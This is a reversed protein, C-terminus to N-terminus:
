TGTNNWIKDMLIIGIWGNGDGNMSVRWHGFDSQGWVAFKVLIGVVSRCNPSCNCEFGLDNIM